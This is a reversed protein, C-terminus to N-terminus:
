ETEAQSKINRVMKIYAASTIRGMPTDDISYQYQTESIKYFDITTKSGTNFTFVISSIPSTTTKEINFDNCQISVFDGYFTQFNDANIKKGNALVTYIKGQTEDDVSSIDFKIKEEGDILELASIDNISYMFPQQNYFDEIKLSLFSFSDKSVKRIMTAEDYIVACNNDDIISIKFGKSEGNITLTIVADPNDLGFQKLTQDNIDFAYNGSVNITKTFLEMLPALNDLKAFRKTPTTIIYPVIEASANNESNNKITLTDGYLAGSLTLSDFNTYAGNESKNASTDTSFTTAPIPTKDALDVLEFQFDSLETPSVVYIKDSKDLKFFYGLGDPSKDGVCFGFSGNTADEVNVKILPKDFGCETATKTTIERLATINAVSSIISNMADTSMKSFDIDQTSWYTTLKEKGSDDTSTIQKAVFKFEGNTNTINVATFTSSNKDIVSIDEFINNAVEEDKLEPILKVVAITGGILVAVAVCAAIISVMRKKGTNKPRKAIHKTPASFITSEEPEQQIPAESVNSDAPSQNINEQNTDFFDSM